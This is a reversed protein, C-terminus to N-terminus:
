TYRDWQNSCLFSGQYVLDYGLCFSVFFPGQRCLASFNPSASLLESANQASVRDDLVDDSEDM